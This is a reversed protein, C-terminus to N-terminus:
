VGEGSAPLLWVGNIKWGNETRVMEFDLIHSRGDAGEVQIRQVVRGAEDRLGLFRVVAPRWVMPYGERVMQGFNEPTRFIGRIGPSAFNFATAFDDVLFADIQSQIAEAIAVDRTQAAVQIPSLLIMLATLVFRM